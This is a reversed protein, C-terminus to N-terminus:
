RIQAKYSLSISLEFSAGPLGSPAGPLGSSGISREGLGSRPGCLGTSSILLGDGAPLALLRLRDADGPALGRLGLPLGPSPGAEGAPLGTPDGM